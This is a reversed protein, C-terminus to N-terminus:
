AATGFRAQAAACWREPPPLSPPTVRVEAAGNRSARQLPQLQYCRRRAAIYTRARTESREAAVSSLAIVSARLVTQL